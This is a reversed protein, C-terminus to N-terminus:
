FRRSSNGKPICRTTNSRGLGPNTKERGHHYLSSLRILVANRNYHRVVSSALSFNSKGELKIPPKSAMVAFLDVWPLQDPAATAYQSTLVASVSEVAWSAIEAQDSFVAGSSTIPAGMVKLTKHLM